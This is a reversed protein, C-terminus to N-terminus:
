NKMAKKEADEKLKLFKETQDKSLVQLIKSSIKDNILRIKDKKEMVSIDMKYIEELSDKNDNIASKVVAQQLGDLNIEKTLYKAYNEAYDLNEKQRSNNRQADDGISRDVGSKRGGNGYQSYSNTTGVVLLLVSIFFFKIM